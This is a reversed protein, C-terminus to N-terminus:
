KALTLGKRFESPTQGVTKKFWRGFASTSEFGVDLAIETVSLELDGLMQLSVRCRRERLYTHPSKTYREHFLRIFHHLSLGAEQAATKVSVESLDCTDLHLRARELQEYLDARTKWRVAPTGLIGMAVACPRIAPMPKVVEDSM